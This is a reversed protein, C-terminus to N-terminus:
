EAPENKVRVTRTARASAGIIDRNDIGRRIRVTGEREDVVEVIRNLLILTDDRGSERARRVAAALHTTATAHDGKELATLGAEVSESLAVQGTYIDLRPNVRTLQRLDDTWGVRVSAQALTRAPGGPSERVVVSVLAARATEPSNTAMGEAGGISAQDAHVAIQYDRSEDGWAGLPFDVSRGDEAPVAKGTLDEITPAVQRVLRLTVGKATRVRLYADSVTKSMADAVMSRFDAVMDKPERIIDWTGLLASAIEALTHRNWDGGIGRADCTFHGACVQLARGISGHGDTLLIAHRIAGPHDSLLQDALLLWPEFDTGGGATVGRLAEKAQERTGADIRVLKRQPPYALQAEGDGVIVAFYTGDRLADLAARAANKAAVLKEGYMSGSRDIIVVEAAQVPGGRQRPPAGSAEIGIIADVRTAGETLYPNQDVTVTFDPESM